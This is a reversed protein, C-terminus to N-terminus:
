PWTVRHTGTSLEQPLPLLFNNQTVMQPQLKEGQNARIQLGVTTDPGQTLMKYASPQTHREQENLQCIALNNPAEGLPSPDQSRENLM